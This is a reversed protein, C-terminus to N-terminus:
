LAFEIRGIKDLLRQQLGVLRHVMKLTLIIGLPSGPQPLNEGARQQVLHAIEPTFFPIDPTLARQFIGEVCRRQLQFLTQSSIEGIWM